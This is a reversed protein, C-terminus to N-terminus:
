YLGISGLIQRTQEETPKIYLGEDSLKDLDANSFCDSRYMNDENGEFVLWAARQGHPVVITHLENSALYKSQGEGLPNVQTIVLPSEENILVFEMKGDLIKSKYEFKKLKLPFNAGPDEVATVNTVSGLITELLLNRRHTHFAVSMPRAGIVRNIAVDHNRALDHESTAFFVRISKGPYENIMFSHVGKAHCNLFSNEAVDQLNERVLHRLGALM